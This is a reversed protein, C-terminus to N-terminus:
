KIRKSRVNKAGGIRYSLLLDTCCIFLAIDSLHYKKSTLHYYLCFLFWLGLLSTTM